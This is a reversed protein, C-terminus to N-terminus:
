SYKLIFFLNSRPIGLFCTRSKLRVKFSHMSDSFFLIINFPIFIFTELLVSPSSIRNFHDTSFSLRTLFEIIQPPVGHREVITTSCTLLVRQFPSITLLSSQTQSHISRTSLLQTKFAAKKRWISKKRLPRVSKFKFRSKAGVILIILSSILQPM